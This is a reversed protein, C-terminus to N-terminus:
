FSLPERRRTVALFGAALLMVGALTAAGIGASGWDFSNGTGIPALEVASAGGDGGLADTHLIVPAPQLTVSSMWGDRVTDPAVANAALGNGGLVDTHLIVANAGASGSDGDTMVVARAAPAIALATGLILTILAKRKV